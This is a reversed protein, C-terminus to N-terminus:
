RPDRWMPYLSPGDPLTIEGTQVFGNRQYLSMNRPNSSELYAPAGESDCIRLVPEMTRHGLGAGQREPVTSLINLYWHPQHPHAAAMAAVLVRLRENSEDPIPLDPPEDSSDVFGPARWLATCADELVHITGRDPLFDAALGTFVLQGLELRTAPDPLIWTQIPDDYFGAAAIRGVTEVDALTARQPAVSTTV